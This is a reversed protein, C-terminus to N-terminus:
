DTTDRFIFRTKNNFNATEEDYLFMENIKTFIRWWSLTLNDLKGTSSSGNQTMLMTASFLHTSLRAMEHDPYESDLCTNLSSGAPRFARLNATLLM